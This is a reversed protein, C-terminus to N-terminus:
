KMSEPRDPFDYFYAEWEKYSELNHIFEIDIDLITLPTLCRPNFPYNGTVQQYEVARALIHDDYDTPLEPPQLVLERKGTKLERAHKQDANRRALARAKTRAM